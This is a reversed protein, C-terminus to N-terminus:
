HERDPRRTGPFPGSLASFRQRAAHPLPPRDKDDRRQEPFRHLRPEVWVPVHVFAPVQHHPGPRAAQARSAAQVRAKRIEAQRDLRERIFARNREAVQELDASPEIVSIQRVPRHTIAQDSCPQDSFVTIGAEDCRYVEAPAVTALGALLLAAGTSFVPTLKRYM